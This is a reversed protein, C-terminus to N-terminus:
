VCNYIHIKKSLAAAKEARTDGIRSIVLDEVYNQFLPWTANVKDHNSDHAIVYANYASVEMLYFFIQRWWKKSRHNLLYYDTMQDCVTSTGSGVLAVHLCVISFIYTFFLVQWSHARAAWDPSLLTNCLKSTPFYCICQICVDGDPLFFDAAVMEEIQSKTLLLRENSRFSRCREHEKTLWGVDESGWGTKTHEFRASKKRGSPSTQICHM